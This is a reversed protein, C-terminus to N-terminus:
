FRQGDVWVTRPPGGAVFPPGFKLLWTGPMGAQFDGVGFPLSPASWRGVPAVAAGAPVQGAM